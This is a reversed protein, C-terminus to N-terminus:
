TNQKSLETKSLTWLMYLQWIFVAYSLAPWVYLQMIEINYVTIIALYPILLFSISKILFAVIVTVLYVAIVFAPIRNDFYKQLNPGAKKSFYILVATLFVGHLLNVYMDYEINEGLLINLLPVITFGAFNFAVVFLTVTRFSSKEAMEKEVHKAGRYIHNRM